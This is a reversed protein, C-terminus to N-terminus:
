APEAEVPQAPPVLSAAEVFPATLVVLTGTEAASAISLQGGIIAARERMSALGYGQPGAEAVEFGHGNDAVRLTI